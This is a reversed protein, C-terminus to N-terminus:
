LSNWGNSMGLKLRVLLTAKKLFVCALLVDPHSIVPLSDSAQPESSTVSSLVIERTIGLSDQLGLTLLCPALNQVGHEKVSSSSFFDVADLSSFPSWGRRTTKPFRCIEKNWSSSYLVVCTSQTGEQGSAKCHNCGIFDSLM